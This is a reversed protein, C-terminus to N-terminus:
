RSSVWSPCYCEELRIRLRERAYHKRAYMLRREREDRVVRYPSFPIPEAYPAVLRSAPVPNFVLFPLPDPILLSGMASDIASIEVAYEHRAIAAEQKDCCSALVLAMLLWRM